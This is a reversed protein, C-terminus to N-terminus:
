RWVDFTTLVFHHLSASTFGAFLFPNSIVMNEVRPREVPIINPFALKLSRPVGLNMSAAKIHIKQFGKINLHEKNYM